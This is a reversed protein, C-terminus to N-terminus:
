VSERMERLTARLGSAVEGLEIELGDIDIPRGLESELVRWAPLTVFDAGGDELRDGSFGLGYLKSVYNAVSILAVEYRHQESRHPLDHHAIAQVVMESLGCQRAFMVGAERHEVGLHKLELEELRGREQWTTVLIMRYIEPAVTSLVIKGVDHLLAAVHLVDKSKGGLREDLREALEATAIAHLWLHRWDFGDSIRNGERLTFLARATNRVRTIGLMQIATNLEEIRQGSGLAASNAMRLVRVCLASDKEVAAVVDALNVEVKGLASQLKNAFLQLAPIQRLNELEDMTRQRLLPADVVLVAPQTEVEDMEEIPSKVLTDALAQQAAALAQQAAQRAPSPRGERKARAWELEAASMKRASVAPAVAVREAGGRGFLAKLRSWWGGSAKRDTSEM